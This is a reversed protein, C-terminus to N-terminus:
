GLGARGKTLEGLASRWGPAPPVQMHLVRRVHDRSSTGSSCSGKRDGAAGGQRGAGFLATRDFEPRQWHQLRAHEKGQVVPRGMASTGPPLLKHELQEHPQQQPQPAAATGDTGAAEGAGDRPEGAVATVVVEAVAAVRDLGVAGVAKHGRGAPAKVQPQEQGEGRQGVPKQGREVAALVGKGGWVVAAHRCGGAELGETYKECVPGGLPVQQGERVGRGASEGADVVRGATAGTESGVAPQLVHEQQHSCGDPQLEQARLLSYCAALANVLMAASHGDVVAHHLSLGLVCGRGGFRGDGGDGGGGGGSATTSYDSSGGGGDSNNAAARNSSGHGQGNPANPQQRHHDRRHPLHTLRVKLLPERGVLAAAADLPQPPLTHLTWFPLCCKLVTLEAKAM